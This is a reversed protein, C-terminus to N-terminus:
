PSPAKVMSKENLEGRFKRSQQIILSVPNEAKQLEELLFSERNWNGKVYKRIALLEEQKMEGVRSFAKPYYKARELLWDRIKEARESLAAQQKQEKAEQIDLRHAEYRAQSISRLCNDIMVKMDPFDAIVVQYFDRFDLECAIRTNLRVHKETCAQDKAGRFYDDGGWEACDKTTELVQRNDKHAKRAQYREGELNMLKAFMLTFNVNNSPQM